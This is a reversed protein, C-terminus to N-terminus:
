PRGGREIIDAANRLMEALKSEAGSQQALADTFWVTESLMATLLHDATLGNLSADIVSGHIANRFRLAAPPPQYRPTEDAGTM